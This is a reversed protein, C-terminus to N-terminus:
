GANNEFYDPFEARLQPIRTITGTIHKRMAAAAAEPDGSAIGEVIATHWKVISAMKGERPLELRQCRALHGLRRLLVTHLGQMGVAEFFNAHFAKDLDHFMQLQSPDNLLTRQLKVLSRARQIVAEDRRETVKRVVETELAVRLFQTEQMQREDIRAVITKSQPYIRVLGDQELQQLAERVPTQSVGFYRTLDTRSITTDPRLELDIIRKRMDSYIRSSASSGPLVPQGAGALISTTEASGPPFPNKGGTKLTEAM